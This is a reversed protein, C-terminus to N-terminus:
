GIPEGTLISLVNTSGTDSGAAEYTVYEGNDAHVVCNRGAAKAYYLAEDAAKLVQHLEVDPTAIAAGVGISVSVWRHMSGPHPIRLDRVARRMREAVILARDVDTQGLTAVFEEGGYRAVLDLPRQACAALAGAVRKLCEDGAQHGLRDNYIKFLDVDILIVAVSSQERLALRWVREAVSDFERRNPIGTLPDSKSLGSLRENAEELEATREAIEVDKRAITQTLERRLGEGAEISQRLREHARRLSRSRNRMRDFVPLFETPTGPPAVINEGAGDLRFGAVAAHMDSVSRAVRRWLGSGLLLALMWAIVLLIAGVAYDGMMQRTIPRLPARVYATWGNATATGAALFRREGDDVSVGYGYARGDGPSAAAALLPDGSLSSLPELAAEASSYIVRGSQDVLIMVTGDERTRASDIGVFAGLDLSGEIIGFARGDPTTLPASIAVIPDSGLGRGRFVHSIFPRGNRMPESFYPRDSIDAGRFGPMPVVDGTLRSTAATVRGQDNAALMTLFNSYVDHYVLLWEGLAAETADGDRSVVSAASSIGARHKDIFQDIGRAVDVSTDELRKALREYRLHASRESLTVGLIAPPVTGAGLLGLLLAGRLSSPALRLSRARPGSTALQVLGYGVALVGLVMALAWAWEHLSLFADASILSDSM